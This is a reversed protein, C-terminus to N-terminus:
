QNKNTSCAATNSSPIMMLLSQNEGIHTQGAQQLLDIMHCVGSLITYGIGRPRGLDQDIARIKRVEYGQFCVCAFILFSLLGTNPHLSLLLSLYYTPCLTISDPYSLSLLCFTFSLSLTCTHFLFILSLFLTFSANNESPDELICVGECGKSM